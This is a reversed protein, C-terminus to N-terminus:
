TDKNGAKLISLKQLRKIQRAKASAKGGESSKLRQWVQKKREYLLRRNYLKDGVKQFKSMIIDKYKEWGENSMKALIRFDEDSDLGCNKDNWCWILLLLYGGVGEAEMKQITKSGLLDNVYLQFAPSSFDEIMGAIEVLEELSYQYDKKLKKM